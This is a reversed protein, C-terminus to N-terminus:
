EEFKPIMGSAKLYDTFNGSRMSKEKLQQLQKLKVESKPSASSGGETLQGKQLKKTKRQLKKMQETQKPQKSLTVETFARDFAVQLGLPHDKLVKGSMPDKEMYLIQTMRKIVPDTYNWQGDVLANKYSGTVYGYAQKRINEHQALTESEKQKSFLEQKFSDMQDKLDLKNLEAQYLPAHEPNQQMLTVLQDRTLENSASQKSTQMTNVLENMKNLFQDEKEQSRFNMMQMENELKENKRQLEAIVNKPPRDTPIEVEDGSVTEKVDESASSDEQAQDEASDSSYEVDTLTGGNVDEDEPSSDLIVDDQNKVM